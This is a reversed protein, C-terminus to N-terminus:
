DKHRANDDFLRWWSKDTYGEDRIWDLVALAPTDNNMYGKVPVNLPERGVYEKAVERFLANWDPFSVYYRTATFWKKNMM